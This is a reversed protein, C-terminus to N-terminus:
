SRVEITENFERCHIDLIVKTGAINGKEDLIDEMRWSTQVGSDENFLALREATIRIGLSKHEEGSRNKIEAAKARGVGNDAIICRLFGQQKLFSVSLRGPGEKHMLGHWISNECFAQLLLPPILINAPNIDNTFSITYDFQNKFRLQEMGIYLRLTEVEEELTILSKKSNILVLRILRSFRTLYDSAQDSENKLIFRNISSLCNFIFHPNMQARLAQMELETAARQWEIRSSENRLKENKRKLSINWFIISGLVVLFIIGGILLNRFVRSERLNQANIQQQKKLLAIQAAKQEDDKIRRFEFLRGKLQDNNISDKMLVYQRFYALAAAPQNLETYIASLMEAADRLSLRANKEKAKRLVENAMDLAKAYEKRLLFIKALGLMADYRLHGEGGKDSVKYLSDFYGYASDKNGLLLHYQGMKLKTLLSGPNGALSRKYYFLASDYEQRDCHLDGMCHALHRYPWTGAEPNLSDARKYYELATSYDGITRYLKGLQLLSLVKNPINNFQDSLNFARQATEFAREYNGQDGYVSSITLFADPMWNEKGRQKYLEVALMITDIAPQFEGQYWLAQGIGRIAEMEMQAFGEERAIGASTRFYQMGIEPKSKQLFLHASYLAARCAGRKYGIHTALEFAPLSYAIGSDSSVQVAGLYLTTIRIMTDVKASDSLFPLEKKLRNLEVYRKSDQAQAPYYLWGTFVLLLLFRCSVFPTIEFNSRM